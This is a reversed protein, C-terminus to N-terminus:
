FLRLQSSKAPLYAPEDLLWVPAIRYTGATQILNDTRMMKDTELL